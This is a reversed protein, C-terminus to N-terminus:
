AEEWVVTNGDLSYDTIVADNEGLFCIKVGSEGVFGVPINGYIKDNIEAYAYDLGSLVTKFNDSHSVELSYKGAGDVTVKTVTGDYPSYVSGKGAVSMVGNEIVPANEGNIAIVPKFQEYNRSDTKSQEKQASTSFVSNLFVNIGSNKYFANTLFITVILAGIILLQATVVTFKHKRQKKVGSVSLDEVVASESASLQVADTAPVASTEREDLIETAIQSADDVEMQRVVASNVKDLLRKKVDDSARLKKSKAKRRKLPTYSINCSNVPMDLMSAYQLKENMFLKIEKIDNYLIYIIFFVANHRM